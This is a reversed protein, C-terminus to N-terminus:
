IHVSLSLLDLWWKKIIIFYGFCWVDFSNYKMSTKYVQQWTKITDFPHGFIIGCAGAISLVDFM